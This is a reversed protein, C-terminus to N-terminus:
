KKHQVQMSISRKYGEEEKILDNIANKISTLEKTHCKKSKTLLVESFKNKFKSALNNKYDVDSTCKIKTIWSEIKTSNFNIDFKIHAEIYSDIAQHLSIQGEYFDDQIRSITKTINNHEPQTYSQTKYHDIELASFGRYRINGEKCVYIKLNDDRMKSISISKNGYLEPFEKKIIYRVKSLRSDDSIKLQVYCQFHRNTQENELGVIYKDSFKDLLGLIDEFSKDTTVRISLEM